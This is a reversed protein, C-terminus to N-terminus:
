GMANVHSGHVVILENGARKTYVYVPTELGIVSIEEIEPDAVLLDMFAFGYVHLYATNALYDMQDKELYIGNEEAAAMLLEKMFAKSEEPSKLERVRAAEKFREEVVEIMGEEDESLRPLSLKYEGEKLIKWGLM